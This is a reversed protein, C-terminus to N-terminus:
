VGIHNNFALQEHQLSLSNSSIFNQPVPHSDMKEIDKNLSQLTNMTQPWNM